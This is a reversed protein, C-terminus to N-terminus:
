VLALKKLKNKNIKGVKTYPWEKLLLIQDPIKYQAVGLGTFVKHIESLQIVKHETKICACSREGLLEDAVGIVIADNIKEYSKLYKEIESPTIKEGCRNIQDNIRGEVKLYGESNIMVKDGTYFFNDDTFFGKNNIGYYGEFRYPGRVLLQGVEGVGVENNNEDVIKIEDYPSIPKGQYNCMVEKSDDPDTLSLFGESMGYAQILKCNVTSILRTATEKDLLAGGVIVYELSSIDFTDDWELVELWIKALTPVLAIMNVKEKEILPFVDEYSVSRSMIVTGGAFLTGMIGPSFLTLKHEVPLIALFKTESTLKCREGAMRAHYALAGHSVPIMKPINTTGGSLLILAIDDYSIDAFDINELESSSKAINMIDKESLIYSISSYRRSLNRTIDLYDFGMYNIPHIYAVPQVHEIIKELEKKMLGPVAIIPIAGIKFLAFCSMVFEFSNPLQVIVKDEKKIGISHLGNALKNVYFELEKYSYRIEEDIIATNMGFKFTWERLWENMTKHDICNYTKKRYM